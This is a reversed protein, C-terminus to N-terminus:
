LAGLEAGLHQRPSELELEKGEVASFDSPWVTFKVSSRAWTLGCMERQLTSLM